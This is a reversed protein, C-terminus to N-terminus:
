IDTATQPLQAEVMRNTIGELILCPLPFDVMLHTELSFKWEYRINGMLVGM